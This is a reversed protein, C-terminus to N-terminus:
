VVASAGGDFNIAAGSIYSARPSALYAILDGAEAAEAVRGLPVGRARVMGAYFGDLSEGGGRRQWSREHQGSKVLGILVANVRINDAALEKSLAKTLALGAARSVSTPVSAAGPQKAGINLLNVIAGGGARRLHPLARRCTRIAGFLKLDLDEQWVADTAAAFPGARSTGANNVLVDRRGLREVTTDILRQVDAAQSVDAVVPVIEAGTEQGVEAAARALEAERRACIVV